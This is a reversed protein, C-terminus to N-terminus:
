CTGTPFLVCMCANPDEVLGGQHGAEASVDYNTCREASLSWDSYNMAEHAPWSYTTCGRSLIGRATPCHYSCYPQLCECFTPYDPNYIPSRVLCPRRKQPASQPGPDIGTHMGNPVITNAANGLATPVISPVERKTRRRQGGKKKEPGATSTSVGKIKFETARPFDNRALYFSPSRM